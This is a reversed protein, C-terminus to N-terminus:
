IPIGSLSRQVKLVFSGGCWSSMKVLEEQNRVSDESSNLLWQLHLVVQSFLMISIQENKKLTVYTHAVIYFVCVEPLWFFTEGGALFNCYAQNFEIKM